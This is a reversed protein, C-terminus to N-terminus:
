QKASPLLEVTDIVWIPDVKARTFTFCLDHKGAETAIAAAPLKTVTPNAQAPALSLTALKKGTCSDLRVELEGAATAPKPLPIAKVENGIQFNFPVQGVSAAIATINSLDAQPYIWCPNMIDVLFTAREGKLPADDTLSLVLKDSCMKLQHSNRRNAALNSNLNEGLPAYHIGLADYRRLQTPLRAQFSKWDRRNAPSWAVEALAAARPFTMYEIRQETRMHESFINAQVGLIHRLQDPKLAAPAPDFRYIDAVSVVWGRGPSPDNPGNQRNDFYLGPQPSLVADHGASAAAIAGDIGRWSMVAANPALGGELIEDWGILKRGHRNLFKEIRHMFYSQLAHEDKIGLERMRSQVQQSTRWQDKVAEDGGVHIYESPFLAMVETLVDELFTFTADNVNYLTPYVGWDSMGESPIQGTAGLRPYAIVAATAHGPMEIEPVVTINRQAAYAVLERVEEQTYFGGYLRPRGTAADIDAAAAAGAPVRWAGVSTLRPYKKIELRWGQDDMLHWHLVNLKHLAMWDIFKRVFQASQFHRSSDLMLGRWKFRPSDNITMSAVSSVDAVPPAATLLQGLTVAGYFLGHPHSASVTIAQPSVDLSYGEDDAATGGAHLKFVIANRATIATASSVPLSWGHSRQVSAVFYRAVREGEAGAAPVIPTHSTVQFAGVKPIIESPLPIVSAAPQGAQPDAGCVGGLLAAALGALTSATRRVNMITTRDCARIRVYHVPSALALM